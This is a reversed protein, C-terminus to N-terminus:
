VECIKSCKRAEDLRCLKVLSAQRKEKSITGSSEPIKRV